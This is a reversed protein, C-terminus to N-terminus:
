GYNQFRPCTCPTASGSMPTVTGYCQGGSAGEGQPGQGGGPRGMDHQLFTHTCGFRRCGGGVYAIDGVTVVRLAGKPGGEYRMIKAM